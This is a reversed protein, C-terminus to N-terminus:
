ILVFERLSRFKARGFKKKPQNFFIEECEADSVRHLSWNKSSNGEDWDFGTCGQLDELLGM